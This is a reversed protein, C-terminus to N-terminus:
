HKGNLEECKKLCDERTEFYEAPSSCEILCVEMGQNGINLTVEYEECEAPEYVRDNFNFLLDHGCRDCKKTEEFKYECSWISKKALIHELSVM